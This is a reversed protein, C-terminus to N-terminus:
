LKARVGVWVVEATEFVIFFAFRDLIEFHLMGRGLSVVYYSHPHQRVPTMWNVSADISNPHVAVQDISLSWSGGDSVVCIKSDLVLLPQLYTM